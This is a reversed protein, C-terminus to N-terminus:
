EEKKGKRGLGREPIVRDRPGPFFRFFAFFQLLHHFHSPKKCGGHISCPGGGKFPPIRVMPGLFRWAGSIFM